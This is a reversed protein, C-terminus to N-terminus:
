PLLYCNGSALDYLSHDPNAVRACMITAQAPKDSLRYQSFPRPGGYLIWPGSGPVGAQEPSVTDFFFHIHMGPLQETFGYTEYDVIYYTSDAKIGTIEVYYAIPFTPSPTITPELTATSEQTASPAATSIGTATPTNEVLFDFGSAPATVLGSDEQVSEAETSIPVNVAALAMTPTAEEEGKFIKPLFIFAGILLLLVFTIGVGGGILLATKVKRKTGPNQLPGGRKEEQHAVETKPISSKPIAPFEDQDLVLTGDETVLKTVPDVKVTAVPVQNFVNRPPLIDRREGALKEKLAFELAYAMEAASQFRNERDKALAKEIVAVLGQPLDPRLKRLDPVPDNVHMMMLTMASDAEFPPKGSVMEFLM